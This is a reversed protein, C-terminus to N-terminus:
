GIRTSLLMFHDAGKTTEIWEEITKVKKSLASVVKDLSYCHDDFDTQTITPQSRTVSVTTLLVIFLSFRRGMRFRHIETEQPLRVYSPYLVAGTKADLLM